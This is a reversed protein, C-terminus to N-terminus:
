RSLIYPSEITGEGSEIVMNGKVTVVPRIGSEGNVKVQSLTNKNVVFNYANSNYFYAPTMTWYPYVSYLYHNSNNYNSLYGSYYLEEVSILGISNILENNGIENNVSFRDNVNDCDLNILGTNYYKNMMDYGTVKNSFGENGFIMKGYNFSKTKRNACYIASDSIMDSYNELNKAYWSDLYIKVVSSSENEHESEYDGSSANGYMYGVYANHNANNNYFSIREVVDVSNDLCVGSNAEGNYVLKVDGSETTRLIKYCNTGFIINNNLKNSGRYFYVTSGNISANTYYVGEDTNKSLDIHEESGSSLSEIKKYITNEEYKNVDDDNSVVSVKGFFTKMENEIQSTDKKIFTVKFTYDHTEGIEIKIRSAITSDKTPVVKVSTYAGDDSDLTYILDEPYVFSNAVSTLNIDYYMDRGSVNTISFKKVFEDGAKANFMSINSTETYEVHLLEEYTEDVVKKEEEEYTVYAYTATSLVICVVVIGIYALIISFNKM